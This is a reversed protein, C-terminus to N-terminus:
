VRELLELLERLLCRRVVEFRHACVRVRKCESALVLHEVRREVVPENLAAECVLQELHPGHVELRVEPTLRDSHLLVLQEPLEVDLVALRQASSLYKTGQGLRRLVYIERM